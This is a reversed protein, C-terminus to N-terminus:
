SAGFIKQNCQLDGNKNTPDNKSSKIKKDQSRNLEDTSEEEAWM